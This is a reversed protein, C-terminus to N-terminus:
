THSAESELYEAEANRRSVLGRLKIGGAFVWRRIEYAAAEYDGANLRRRLTSGALRTGGLNYAFDAIAGHIENEIKPCLNKSTTLYVTLAEEMRADAQEQTWQTSRTVDKGTSGWGCTWVGAPCLYAVLRCGEFRKVLKRLIERATM